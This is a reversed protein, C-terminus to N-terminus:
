GLNGLDSESQFKKSPFIIHRKHFMLICILKVQEEYKAFM